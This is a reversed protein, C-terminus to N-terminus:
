KDASSFSVMLLSYLTLPVIQISVLASISWVFLSHENLALPMRTINLRIIHSVIVQHGPNSTSTRNCDNLAHLHYIGVLGSAIFDQGMAIVSFRVSFLWTQSGTHNSSSKTPNLLKLSQIFSAHNLRDIWKRSNSGELTHLPLPTTVKRAVRIWMSSSSEMLSSDLTSVAGLLDWSSWHNALMRQIIYLYWERCHYLIGHPPSLPWTQM